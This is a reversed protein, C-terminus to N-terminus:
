AHLLVLQGLLMANFLALALKSGQMQQERLAGCAPPLAADAAAACGVAAAALLLAAAAAAM